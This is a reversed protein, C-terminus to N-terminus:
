VWNLSAFRKWTSTQSSFMRRDNSMRCMRNNCTIISKLWHAFILELMQNISPSHSRAPLSSSDCFPNRRRLPSATTHAGDGCICFHFNIHFATAAVGGFSVNDSHFTTWKLKFNCDVDRKRMAMTPMLYISETSIPNQTNAQASACASFQRFYYVLVLVYFAMLAIITHCELKSHIYELEVYFVCIDM